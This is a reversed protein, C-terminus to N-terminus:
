KLLIMKRTQTQDGNVLRYFYIGSPLSGSFFEVEHIGAPLREDVLNEVVQGLVNFVDLRVRGPAPISFEITTSPNFPNPYNQAWLM